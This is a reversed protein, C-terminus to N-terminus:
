VRSNIFIFVSNVSIYAYNFSSNLTIYCGPALFLLFGDQGRGQFPSLFILLQLQPFFRRTLLESQNPLPHRHFYTLQSEKGGVKQNGSLVKWQRLGSPFWLNFSEPYNVRGPCLAPPFFDLLILLFYGACSVHM